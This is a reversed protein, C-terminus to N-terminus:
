GRVLNLFEARVEAERFVGTLSSTVMVSHQKQVGRSCMCLHKAEIICAAGLPQLGDMLASTVDVTLREQVQLRRAFVDLIRGLKSLGIVRGNPIYAIHVKGFFPIMHHECTSWFECDRLLVMEDYRVDEFTKMLDLPSQGYGAFTERYSRLVRDPTERLGEREPDDGAFRILTRVAEEASSVSPIYVTPPM